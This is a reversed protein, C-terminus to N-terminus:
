TMTLVELMHSSPAIEIGEERRGSSNGSETRKCLGSLGRLCYRVDTGGTISAWIAGQSRAGMDPNASTRVPIIQHKSDRILGSILLPFLCRNQKCALLSSWMNRGSREGGLTLSAIIVSNPAEEEDCEVMKCNSCVEASLVDNRVLTVSLHISCPAAKGM